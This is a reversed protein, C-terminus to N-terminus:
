RPRRDIPGSSGQAHAAPRLMQERSLARRRPDSMTQAPRLGAVLSTQLVGGMSRTTIVRLLDVVVLGFPRLEELLPRESAVADQQGGQAPAVQGGSLGLRVGLQPAREVVEGM